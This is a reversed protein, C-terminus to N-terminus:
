CNGYGQACTYSDCQEPCGYSTCDMDNCDKGQCGTQDYNYGCAQFGHCGDGTCDACDSDCDDCDDDCSCTYVTDCSCYSYCSIQKISGDIKTYDNMVSKVYGDIKTYMSDATRITGDVRFQVGSYNAYRSTYGM